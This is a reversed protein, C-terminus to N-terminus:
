WGSCRKWAEPLLRGGEMLACCKHVAATPCAHNPLVRLRSGIPLRDFATADHVPLLGHEQNVAAVQLTGMRRTSRNVILRRSLNADGTADLEM